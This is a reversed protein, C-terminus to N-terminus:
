SPEFTFPYEFTDVSSGAAFKWSQVVAVVCEEVDRNGVNSNSVQVNSVTGDRNITFRVVVIGALNPDAALGISYCGAMFTRTRAAQAEVADQNRGGPGAAQVPPLALQDVQIRKGTAGGQVRLAARRAGGLDSGVRIQINGGLQQRALQIQSTLRAAEQASLGGRTFQSSIQVNSGLAGIDIASSVVRSGTAGEAFIAVDTPALDLTPGGLDSMDGLDGMDGLSSLLDGLQAQVDADGSASADASQAAEIEALAQQASELTQQLSSELNAQAENLLRDFEPNNIDPLEDEQQQPPPLDVEVTRRVVDQLKLLDEATLNAAPDVWDRSSIIGVALSAITVSVAIFLTSTWNTTDYFHKRLEDPFAMKPPASASGTNQQM